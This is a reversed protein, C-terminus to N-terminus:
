FQCSLPPHSSPEDAHAKQLTGNNHGQNHGLIIQTSTSSKKMIWERLLSGGQYFKRLSQIFITDQMQTAHHPAADDRRHRDATVGALRNEGLNPISPHTKASAGCSLVRKHVRPCPPLRREREGVGSDDDDDKQLGGGRERAHKLEKDAYTNKQTCKADTGVVIYANIGVKEAGFLPIPSKTQNLWNQM